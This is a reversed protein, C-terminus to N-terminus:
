PAPPPTKGDAVQFGDLDNNIPSSRAANNSGNTYAYDLASDSGVLSIKNLPLEFFPQWQLTAGAPATSYYAREFNVNTTPSLAGSSDCCTDELIIEASQQNATFSLSVSGSTCISSPCGSGCTTQHWDSLYVSWRNTNTEHLEVYVCDGPHVQVNSFPVEGAPWPEYWAWYRASGSSCLDASVGAQMLNRDHVGGIGDWISSKGLPDSESTCSPTTNKVTPVHFEVELGTYPGGSAAASGKTSCVSFTTCQIYGNWIPNQLPVAGTNTFSEGNSEIASTSVLVTSPSGGVDVYETPDTAQLTGGNVTVNAWQIAEFSPAPLSSPFVQISGNSGGCGPCTGTLTTSKDRTVDTAKLTFSGSSPMNIEMSIDDGVSPTFTWVKSITKSNSFDTYLNDGSFTVVGNTCTIDMVTEGFGAPGGIESWPILVQSGSSPCTVTPVEFTATLARAGDSFTYGAFNSTNSTASLASERSVGPLEVPTVVSGKIQDAWHQVPTGAGGSPSAMLAISAAAVTTVLAFALRITRKM